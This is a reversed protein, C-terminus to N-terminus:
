YVSQPRAVILGRSVGARYTVSVKMQRSLLRVSPIRDGPGFTGRDILGAIREAVQEYLPAHRGVGRGSESGWLQPTM